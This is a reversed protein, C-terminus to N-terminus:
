KEVKLTITMPNLIVKFKKGNIEKEYVEKKMKISIGENNWGSLDEGYVTIMDEREHPGGNDYCEIEKDWFKVNPFKKIEGKTEDCKEELEKSGWGEGNELEDGVSRDTGWVKALQLISMKIDVDKGFSFSSMSKGKIEVSIGDKSLKMEKFEIKM